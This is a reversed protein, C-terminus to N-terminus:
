ATHTSKYTFLHHISFNWILVLILAIAQGVLAPTHALYTFALEILYTLVAGSITTLHFRLCRAGWSRDHGPLHRFTFYDNPIFNALISIEAAIVNAITNHLFPSVPLAVKDFMIYFVILNVIAACGGIFAYSVFRQVWDARGNSYHDAIDLAKNVISWRTPHYSPRPRSAINTSSVGHQRSVEAESPVPEFVKMSENNMLSKGMLVGYDKCYRISEREELRNANKLTVFFYM